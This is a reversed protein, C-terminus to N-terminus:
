SVANSVGLSTIVRTPASAVVEPSLRTRCRRSADKTKVVGFAEEENAWKSM